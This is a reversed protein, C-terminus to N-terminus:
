NGCTCRLFVPTGKNDEGRFAWNSELVIGGLDTNISITKGPETVIGVHGSADRYDLEMAAIDGPQPNNVVEYGAVKGQAWQAATPGFQAGTRFGRRMIPVNSGSLRLIDNVFLNCKNSGAPFNETKRSTGWLTSRRFERARKVVKDPSACPCYGNFDSFNVPDNFTYEYFNTDGGDFRILDKSTWRGVAPDYDRAGFRVFKTDLDYLGGALAFPQFGPSTDVTLNGWEDYEIQQAVAGTTTDVVLKPSGLHDSIIRYTVGGKIVYDPMNIRSAYVFRSVVEGAGDLEAIPNLGDKYLWVKELIGDVKRGIRRNRGDILYEIQTGSPLVVKKLNGLVDYTYVPQAQHM